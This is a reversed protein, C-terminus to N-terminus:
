TYSGAVSTLAGPKLTVTQCPPARRGPVPGFCITHPGAPLDTWTGWDNGAVGDVTITAPVAPRTVVRLSGWRTFSGQVVTTNGATVLVTQPAPETYGEVHTFSVTYSGPALDVWDLGWGGMPMGDVLIQTPLAPNTTVRLRGTRTYKGTVRTLNGGTIVVTQCPPTIYDATSGFCVRHSGTPLDAWMGWNDRPTGDISIAAPVPPSTIVRLSGRQNPQIVLQPLYVIAVVALGLVAAAVALMHWPAFRM